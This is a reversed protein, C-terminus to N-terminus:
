NIMEVLKRKMDDDIKRYRKFARSGEVHGSMSAILNPDQVQKYLNGVFTKRATHSSAVEYLPKQITNYGHTDLITVMRGIGCYKLLERIGKNYIHQAKFPLIKEKDKYRDLIAIAKEHLPVRVTKAQCKKTKQPMYELFGDKINDRKLRYLDGVRCGIYCHFVFVDRIEALKPNDSLDADYLINREESTLFFPDGYVPTKCGYQIYLDSDTYKMKKCWHLFVCFLNMTNTITTGSLLRPKRHKYTNRQHFFEPNEEFLAYENSIYDRFDLMDEKTISEVFLMFDKEDLIERRYDVYRNMKREFDIIHSKASVAGEYQEYYERLRRLLTPLNREYAEQPHLVDFIVQKLWESNAKQPNYSKEAAEIIEAVQKAFANKEKVPVSASRKYGLRNADWQSERITLESVVKIDVEKDRIRFCVNCADKDVDQGKRKKLFVTVKM